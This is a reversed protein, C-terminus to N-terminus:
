KWAILYQEGLQKVAFGLHMILFFSAMKAESDDHTEIFIARAKRFLNPGGKLVELANGEVDIKVIDASEIGLMDIRQKGVPEFNYMPIHQPRIEFTGWKGMYVTGEEAMLALNHCTVSAGEGSTNKVLIDFIGPAPEFAHIAACRTKMLVSYAGCGAGIDLFTDTPALIEIIEKAQLQELYGSYCWQGPLTLPYYNHHRYGKLYAKPIIMKEDWISTTIMTTDIPM